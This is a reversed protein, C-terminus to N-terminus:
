CYRGAPSVLATSPTTLKARATKPVKPGADGGGQFIFGRETSFWPNNLSDPGPCVHGGLRRKSILLETGSRVTM